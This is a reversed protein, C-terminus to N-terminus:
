NHNGGVIAPLFMPWPFPKGCSGEFGSIELISPGDVVFLSCGAGTSSPAFVMDHRLGSTLGHYLTTPFGNDISVLDIYPPNSALLYEGDPSVEFDPGGNFYCGPIASYTSAGFDAQYFVGSSWFFIKDNVSDYKVDLISSLPSVDLLTAAFLNNTNFSQIETASGYGSTVLLQKEKAVIGAELGFDAFTHEITTTGSNTKIRALEGEALPVYVSSDLFQIDTYAFPYFNGSCGPSELGNPTFDTTVTSVARDPGIERLVGECGGPLGYDAYYFTRNGPDVTLGAPQSPLGSVYTSIKYPDAITKITLSWAILHGPDTVPFTDQLELSWTGDAISGDVVSLPEEPRYSGTFPPSGTSISTTAEDDFITQVYSCCGTGRQDALLIRTGDPAILTLILDSPWPHSIYLQVNLDAIRDTNCVPVTSTVPPGVVTKQLDTSHYTGDDITEVILSWSNLTGNDVFQFDDNIELAWTGSTGSGDLVTLSGEPQYSGFFPAIGATIATAAEDDFITGSYNDFEGGNDTSLEVRTGDPAILFIDLDTDFTHSINLQVNIDTITQSCPVSIVSMVTISGDIVKPVDTSSYTTTTSTADLVPAMGAVRKAEYSNGAAFALNMGTVFTVSVVAVILIARTLNRGMEKGRMKMQFM